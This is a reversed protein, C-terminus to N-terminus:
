SLMFDGLKESLIDLLGDVLGASVTILVLVGETLFVLFAQDWSQKYLYYVLFGFILLILGGLLVSSLELGIKVLLRVVSVIFLLPLLAAKALIRGASM